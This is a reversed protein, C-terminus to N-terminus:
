PTLELKANPLPGPANRAPPSMMEAFLSTASTSNMFSNRPMWPLRGIVSSSSSVDFVDSTCLRGPMNADTVLMPEAM